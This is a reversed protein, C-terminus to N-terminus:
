QNDFKSTVRRIPSKDPRPAPIARDATSTIGEAELQGALASTIKAKWMAFNATAYGPMQWLAQIVAGRDGRRVSKQISMISNIIDLTDEDMEVASREMEALVKAVSVFDDYRYFHVRIVENYLQTTAGLVHSISGLSKVKPLVSLALPSPKAFSRDLLRIGLLLYSPYLPGYLSLDSVPKERKSKNAALNNEATLKELVPKPDKPEEKKKVAKKSALKKENGPSLEKKSNDVFPAEELGLKTILSFVEMEMIEWLEVDTEANRLLNEVREREPTRLSELQDYEKPPEEAVGEDDKWFEDASDNEELGMAKAITPRLAVPYRNVINERSERSMAGAHMQQSHFRNAMSDALIADLKSKAMDQTSMYKMNPQPSRQKQEFMDSFIKQFARREGDTITSERPGRLDMSQAEEGESPGYDGEYDADEDVLGFEGEDAEGFENVRGPSWRAAGGFQGPEFEFPVEYEGSRTTRRESPPSDFKRQKWPQPKPIYKRRQVTITFNRRITNVYRPVRAARNLAATSCTLTKTQYLFPMMTMSLTSIAMPLAERAPCLTM